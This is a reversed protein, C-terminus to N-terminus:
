GNEMRAIARAVQPNASFLETMQKGVQSALVTRAEPTGLRSRCAGMFQPSEMRVSVVVTLGKDKASQKQQGNVAKKLATTLGLRVGTVHTGRDPCYRDNVDARIIEDRESCFQIGVEFEIGDEEGRVVVTDHLPIRERNLNRVFQQIGYAFRFEETTSSAEDDFSIKVGSHLLSLEELRRRLQASSILADSFVVPDPKFSVCIGTQCDGGKKIPQGLPAGARFEQAIGQAEIRFHKSLANATAIAWIRWVPDRRPPGGQRFDPSPPNTLWRELPAPLSLGDDSITISGDGGLRVALSKARGGVLSNTIVDDVLYHLGQLGVDGIFMSPRKRVGERFTSEQWGPRIMEAESALWSVGFPYQELFDVLFFVRCGCAIVLQLM